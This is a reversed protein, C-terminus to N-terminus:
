MVRLRILMRTVLATRLLWTLFRQLVVGNSLSCLTGM